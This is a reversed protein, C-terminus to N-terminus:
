RTWRSFSEVEAVNGKNKLVKSCQGNPITGTGFLRIHIFARLQNVSPPKFDKIQIDELPSEEGTPFIKKMAEDNQKFLDNRRSQAGM